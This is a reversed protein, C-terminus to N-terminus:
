LISKSSCLLKNLRDINLVMLKRHWDATAIFEKLNYICNMGSAKAKFLEFAM